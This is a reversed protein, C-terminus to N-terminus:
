GSKKNNRKRFIVPFMKVLFWVSLIIVYLVWFGVISGGFTIALSTTAIIKGMINIEQRDLFSWFWPYVFFRKLPILPMRHEDAEALVAITVGVVGIANILLWAMCFNYM